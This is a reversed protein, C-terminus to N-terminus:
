VHTDRMKGGIHLRKGLVGQHPVQHLVREGGPVEGQLLAPRGGHRRPDESLRQRRHARLPLGWSPLQPRPVDGTHRAAFLISIYHMM